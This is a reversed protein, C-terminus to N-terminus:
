FISKFHINLSYLPLSYVLSLQSQIHFGSLQQLIAFIKM